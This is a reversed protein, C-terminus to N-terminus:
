EAPAASEQSPEIMPTRDTCVQLYPATIPEVATPRQTSDFDPSRKLLPLYLYDFPALNEEVASITVASVPPEHPPQSPGRHILREM